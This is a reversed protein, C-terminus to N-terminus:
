NGQYACLSPLNTQFQYGFRWMEVQKASRTDFLRIKRDQSTILIENGSKAFAIRDVSDTCEPYAQHLLETQIDWVRVTRDGKGGGVALLNSSPSFKVCSVSWHSHVQKPMKMHPNMVVKQRNIDWLEVRSDM